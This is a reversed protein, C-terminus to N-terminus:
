GHVLIKLIQDLESTVVSLEAISDIPVKKSSISILDGKFEPLDRLKASVEIAICPGYVIETKGSFFRMIGHYKEGLQGALRSPEEAVGEGVLILPVVSWSHIEPPPPPIGKGDELSRARIRGARLSDEFPETVSSLKLSVLYTKGNSTINQILLFSALSKSIESSNLSEADDLYGAIKDPILAFVMGMLSDTLIDAPFIMMRLGSETKVYESILFAWDGKTPFDFQIVEDAGLYIFTSASRPGKGSVIAM